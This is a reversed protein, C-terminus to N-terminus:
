GTTSYHGVVGNLRLEYPVITQHLRPDRNAMVNEIGHDGQYAPDQDIPLGNETLYSDIADKSVGTQSEGRNNYSMLAHTLIGSEYERYLIVEPNGALSVSSFVDRYNGLSYNGDTILENAAWKAAELYERAKETNGEHYKQWTGEFLFVRSMFGLVVDRNVMLGDVRADERVNAAAYQFDELVKDMVFERSDRPKYLEDTQSENLESEYWPVDGFRQVLDKYEMGRFFRGIGIWHEKADEEIPSDQVRNIFINAKRVWSFTWGGGSTLVSSTFVPPSTPAFDDNFSEGSFFKGWAYGSGYGPFYAPYFGFAFTEINNENTWFTEDTMQDQPPVELFDKDCGWVLLALGCILFINKFKM